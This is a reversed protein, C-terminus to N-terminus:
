IPAQKLTDDVSGCSREDEEMLPMAAYAVLDDAFEDEDNPDEEQQQAIQKRAVNTTPGKYNLCAKARSTAHGKLGCSSCTVNKREAATNRRKRAPQEEEVDDLAQGTRYTGERKAREKRAIATDDALQQYKLKLRNKKQDKTKTKELRKTRNRDKVQLFHTVNRTMSIGLTMFVKKYFGHLGLKNIAIAVSLRNRLSQSGCYVKNKPAIWSATNNFSENVQTDMSHAVEKLRDMTIFRAMIKTSLIAYLKADKNM